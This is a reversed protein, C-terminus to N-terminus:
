EFARRWAEPVKMRPAPEDPELTGDLSQQGIQAFYLLTKIASIHAEKQADFPGCWDYSPGPNRLRFFWGQHDRYEFEIGLVGSAVSLSEQEM